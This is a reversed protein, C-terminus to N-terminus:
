AGMLEACSGLSYLDQLMQVSARVAAQHAAWARTHAAGQLLDPSGAVLQRRQLVAEREVDDAGLAAAVLASWDKTRRSIGAHCCGKGQHFGQAPWLLVSCLRPLARATTCTM